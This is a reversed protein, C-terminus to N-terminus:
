VQFLSAGGELAAGHTRRPFAARMPVTLSARDLAPRDDRWVRDTHRPPSGAFRFRIAALAVGPEAESLRSEDFM